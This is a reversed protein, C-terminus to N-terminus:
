KVKLIIPKKDQDATAMLVEKSTSPKEAVQPNEMREQTAMKTKRQKSSRLERGEFIPSEKPIVTAKRKSM